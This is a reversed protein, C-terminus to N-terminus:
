CHHVGFTVSHPRKWVVLAWQGGMVREEVGAGIAGDDVVNSVNLFCVSVIFMLALRLSFARRASVCM